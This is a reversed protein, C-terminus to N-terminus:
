NYNQNEIIYRTPVAHVYKKYSNQVQTGKNIRMQIASKHMGKEVRFELM